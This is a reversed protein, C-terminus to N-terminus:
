YRYIIGEKASEFGQLFMGIWEYLESKTGTPTIRGMGYWENGTGKVTVCMSFGCSNQDLVFMECEGYKPPNNADHGFVIKNAQAVKAEIQKQTIRM